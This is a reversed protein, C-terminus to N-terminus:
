KARNNSSNQAWKGTLQHISHNSLVLNRKRTYRFHAQFFHNSVNAELLHDALPKGQVRLKNEEDSVIMQSLRVLRERNAEGEPIIM